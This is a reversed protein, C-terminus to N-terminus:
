IELSHITKPSILSVWLNSVDTLVITLWMKTFEHSKSIKSQIPFIHVNWACKKKHLFCFALISTLM